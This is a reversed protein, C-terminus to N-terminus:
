SCDVQAENLHLGVSVSQERATPRHHNVESSKGWTSITGVAMLDAIRSQLSTLKAANNIGLKSRPSKLLYAPSSPECNRRGSYDSGLKFRLRIRASNMAAKLLYLFM